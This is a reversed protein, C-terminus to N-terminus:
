EEYDIGGRNQPISLLTTADDQRGTLFQMDADLLPKYAVHLLATLATVDDVETWPRIPGAPSQKV